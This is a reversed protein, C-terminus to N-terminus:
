KKLGDILPTLISKKLESNKFNVLMAYSNANSLDIIKGYDSSYWKLGWSRFEMPMHFPHSFKEAIESKDKDSMKVVKFKSDEKTYKVFGIHLNMTAVEV